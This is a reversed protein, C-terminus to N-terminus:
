PDSPPGGLSTNTPNAPIEDDALVFENYSLKPTEPTLHKPPDQRM